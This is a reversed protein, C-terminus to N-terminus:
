KRWSFWPLLYQEDENEMTDIRYFRMFWTVLKIDYKQFHIGTTVDQPLPKKLDFNHRNLFLSRDCYIQFHALHSNIVSSSSFFSELISFVVDNEYILNKNIQKSHTLHTNHIRQTHYTDLIFPFGCSNFLNDLKGNTCLMKFAQSFCFM